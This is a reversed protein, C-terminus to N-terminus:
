IFIFLSNNSKILKLLDACRTNYKSFPEDLINGDNGSTKLFFVLLIYM